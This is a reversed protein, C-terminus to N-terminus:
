KTCSIVQVDVISPKIALVQEPLTLDKIRQYYTENVFELAEEYANDSSCLIAIRVTSDCDDWYKITNLSGCIATYDWGPEPETSIHSSFTERVAAPGLNAPRVIDALVLSEETGEYGLRNLEISDGIEDEVRSKVDLILCDKSSTGVLSSAGGEGLIEDLSRINSVLKSGQNWVKLNPKADLRKVAPLWRPKVYHIFKKGNSKSNITDLYKISLASGSPRDEIGEITGVKRTLQNRLEFPFSVSEGQYELWKYPDTLQMPISRYKAALIGSVVLLGVYDLFPVSLYACIRGNERHSLAHM